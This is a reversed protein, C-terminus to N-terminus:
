KNSIIQNSTEQELVKINIEETVLEGPQVIGLRLSLGALEAHSHISFKKHINSIHNRVTGAGIGLKLAVDEISNGMASLRLVPIESKNLRSYEPSELGYKEAAEEMWGPLYPRDQMILRFAEAIEDGDGARLDVYSAAGLSIFGAARGPTLREYGFVAISMHPFKNAYHAIMYPTAEYWCNSEVLALRPRHRAVLHKFEGNSPALCIKDGSRANRVFGQVEKGVRQSSSSIVVTDTRM